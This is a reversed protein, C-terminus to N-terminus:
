EQEGFLGGLIKRIHPPLDNINGMIQIHPRQSTKAKAEEETIGREMRWRAVQSAMLAGVSQYLPVLAEVAMYAAVEASAPGWATWVEEDHEHIADHLQQLDQAVPSLSMALRDMVEQGWYAGLETGALTALGEVLADEINDAARRMRKGQAKFLSNPQQLTHVALLMAELTNVIVAEGPRVRTIM